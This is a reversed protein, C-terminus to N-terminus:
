TTCTYLLAEYPVTMLVDWTLMTQLLLINNGVNWNRYTICDTQNKYIDLLFIKFAM